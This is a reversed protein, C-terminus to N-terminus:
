LSARGSKPAAPEEVPPLPRGADLPETPKESVGLDDRSATEISAAPLVAEPTESADPQRSGTETNRIATTEAPALSADIRLDRCALLSGKEYHINKLAVAYETRARFLQIEAQAVRRLADVQREDNSQFESRALVADLYKRAAAYQALSNKLATFSREQDSFAGTLNSIIERQQERQVTRERMLSLEAHAVAAHGKRFGIPVNLELGM